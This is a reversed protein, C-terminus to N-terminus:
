GLQRQILLELYSKREDQGKYNPIVDHAIRKIREKAQSITEHLDNETTIEVEVYLGLDHVKDFSVTLDRQYWNTRQKKVGAFAQFGLNELFQNAIKQDQVDLTTENRIKLDSGVKPGKYTIEVKEFELGRQICRIRLAEDTLWFNRIPSQYYTDKQIITESPDGFKDSLRIIIETEKIHEELPIKIEVEM